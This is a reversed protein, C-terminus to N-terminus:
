LNSNKEQRERDVSSKLTRLHLIKKMANYILNNNKLTNKLNWYAGM